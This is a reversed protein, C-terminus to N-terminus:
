ERLREAAERLRLAADVTVLAGHGPIMRTLGDSAAIEALDARLARSDKAFFWRTARPVSVTGTPALLLGNLGRSPPVNLVTDCFVASMGDPSRVSMVGERARIGDIDRLAVSGDTPVDAYTGSCEVAKSAAGIAGSPAYFKARPYREHFSFADQRHFANPILVASVEGWADIKAMSADDLAVANHVVIRGDALRALVMWRGTGHRMKGEVCWLNPALEQIPAHPLVTWTRHGVAM